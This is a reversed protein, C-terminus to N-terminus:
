SKKRERGPVAHSVCRGRFDINELYLILTIGCRWTGWWVRGFITFEVTTSVWPSLSFLLARDDFLYTINNM